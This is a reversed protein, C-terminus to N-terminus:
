GELNLTAEPTETVLTVPLRPGPRPRPPPPAPPPEPLPAAPADNRALKEVILAWTERQHKLVRVAEDIAGLNRHINADVLRMYCFNYLAVMQEALTPNAARNIGAALQLCIRQARDLHEFSHEFDGAELATRGRLAYRVAGDLLMVQLQEPKATMVAAKM